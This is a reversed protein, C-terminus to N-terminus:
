RIVSGFSVPQEHSGKQNPPLLGLWVDGKEFAFVLKQADAPKLALTALVDGATAGTSSTASAVRLVQVDAVLTVTTDGADSGDLTAYITVHDGSRLVGGVARSVDLPITVAKMGEPIGLIGGGIEDEGRLRALLIQEGALITSSTQQGELQALGVVAGEILLTRPIARTTFAGQQILTSLDAGAPIEQKAVIVEVMEQDAAVDSRVGRVYLYVAATAGIALLLAVLVMAGRAKM